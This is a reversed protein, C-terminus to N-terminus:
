KTGRTGWGVGGGQRELPREVEASSSNSVPYNNATPPQGTCPLIDTDRAEM